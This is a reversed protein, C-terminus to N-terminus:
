HQPNDMRCNTLCHNQLCQRILLGPFHHAQCGMERSTRYFKGMNLRVKLFACDYKPAFTNCGRVMIGTICYLMGIIILFIKSREAEPVFIQWGKTLSLSCPWLTSDRTLPNAVISLKASTFTSPHAMSKPSPQRRNPQKNFTKNKCLFYTKQKSEVQIRLIGELEENEGNGSSSHSTNWTCSM